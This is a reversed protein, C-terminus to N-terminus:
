YRTIRLLQTSSANSLHWLLFHQQVSLLLINCKRAIFVSSVPLMLDIRLEWERNVVQITIWFQYFWKCSIELLTQRQRWVCSHRNRLKFCNIDIKCGVERKLNERGSKIKRDRGRERRVKDRQLMGLVWRWSIEGAQPGSWERARALCFAYSFYSWESALLLPFLQTHEVAIYGKGM